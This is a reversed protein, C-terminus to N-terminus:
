ARSAASSRDPATLPARSPDAAEDSSDRLVGSLRAAARAVASDESHGKAAEDLLLLASDRERALPRAYGSGSFLQLYAVLHARAGAEDGARRELAMALALGRMSTRVLQREEAMSLLARGLERAADFAGQANLLRLRTCALMEAERWGQTELDICAAADEPLRGARWASEAEEVDGGSLLVSVRLASLFRALRARETRQAHEHAQHVVALAAAAGGGQLAFEARVEASAAHIDLWAGCEGLVRPSLQAGEAGVAGASGEVELEASLVQGLLMAGADRLHSARAVELARGYRWRAEDARGRAMAMSGLQFDVHALYPSGEAFEERARGAWEVAADFGTRQNQMMCIGLSFMGRYLPPIDSGEAMAIAMPLMESMPGGFPDCGCMEVLGNALLHDDQLATDDGGERDRTFGATRVAAAHYVRKAAAIHDSVTLAACRLLTLRPFRTLVDESLLRDVTRLAELGEELWLRVGGTSEALRGLLETDGAEAAHRLAEVPRGRRSLAEAIARHLARFREPTEEFRRKECHEKILPHLQMASGNGGTTSFLGALARLSALRRGANRLGAAEEVLDPEIRDFLAIDLVLDLDGASIGRWLRTEIWGAVLDGGGRPGPIEAGEPGANRYIRLAIPWGASRAVVSNFEQSTLQQQFFRTIDPPSFRLDEVTLTAANGEFALMAVELGLPRERYAMGVHLNAPARRLLVNLAAVAEPNRLREVEDLALVCPGGHHELARLLLNIRYDAQSDAEAGPAGTAADGARGAGKDASEVGARQFALSFYRAVSGPEDEEDLSLWAM